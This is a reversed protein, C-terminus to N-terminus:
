RDGLRFDQKSDESEISSKSSDNDDDYNYYLRAMRADLSKRVTPKSTGMMRRPDGAHAESRIGTLVNNASISGNGSPTEKPEEAVKDDDPPSSEHTNATIEKTGETEHVNAQTSREARKMGYNLVKAKDEKPITDWIEQTEKSLSTWTEKNMHAAYDSPNRFKRKAENVDIIALDDSVDDELEHFNVDRPNKSRRTADMKSATAKVATMYEYYTFPTGGLILRDTERETVEQFARIGSLANQMYTRKMSENIHLHVNGQQNNYLDFMQDLTVVFEYASKTWSKFNLRTTIIEQLMERTTIIAPATPHIGKLGQIFAQQANSDTSHAEAHQRPEIPKIAHRLVAYSFAQMGDWEVNEKCSNHDPVYHPDLVIEIGQARMTSMTDKYWTDYGGIEKLKNYSKIDCKMPPKYKPIPILSGYSSGGYGGGGPPMGPPMGGGSGPPFSGGSGPPYGGGGNGPTFWPPIGGGHSNSPPGSGGSTGGNFPPGGQGSPMFSGQARSYVNSQYAGSTRTHSPNGSYGFPTGRMGRSPIANTGNSAPGHNGTSYSTTGMGQNIGGPTHPAQQGSPIGAQHATTAWNQSPTSTGQRSTPNNRRVQYRTSTTTATWPRLTVTRPTWSGSIASWPQSPNGASGVVNNMPTSPTVTHTTHTTGHRQSMDSVATPVTNPTGNYQGDQKPHTPSFSNHNSIGSIDTGGFQDTIIPESFQVALGQKANTATPRDGSNTMTPQDNNPQQPPSEPAVVRRDLEGNENYYFEYTTGRITARKGEWHSRIFQTTELCNEPLEDIDLTHPYSVWTAPKHQGNKRSYRGTFHNQRPNGYPPDRVPQELNPARFGKRPASTVDPDENTPTAVNEDTNDAGSTPLPVGNTETISATAQQSAAKRKAEEIRAEEVRAEKAIREQEAEKRAKDIRAEVEIRLQEEKQIKERDMFWKLLSRVEDSEADYKEYVKLTDSLVSVPDDYKGDRAYQLVHAHICKNEILDKMLCMGAIGFDKHSVIDTARLRKGGETVDLGNVRMELVIERYVQGYIWPTVVTDYYAEQYCVKQTPLLEGERGPEITLPTHRGMIEQIKPTLKLQAFDELSRDTDIFLDAFTKIGLDNAIEEAVKWSDLDGHYEYRRIHKHQRLVDRLHSVLAQFCETNPSPFEEYNWPIMKTDQDGQATATGSTSPNYTSDHDHASSPTPEDLEFWENGKRYQYRQLASGSLEDGLFSVQADSSANGSGDSVAFNRDALYRESSTDSRQANAQGDGHQINTGENNNGQLTTVRANDTSLHPSGGQEATDSQRQTVTAVGGSTTRYNSDPARKRVSPQDSNVSTDKPNPKVELDTVNVGQSLCYEVITRKRLDVDKPLKGGPFMKYYMDQPIEYGPIKVLKSKQHKDKSEKIATAWAVDSESEPPVKYKNPNRSTTKANHSGQPTGDHGSKLQGSVTSTKNGQPSGSPKEANHSVEPKGDHDSKLQGDATSTKTDQHSGPPKKLLTAPPVAQKSLGATAPTGTRKPSGTTDGKDDHRGSAKGSGSQSSTSTVSDSGCSMQSSPSSAKQPSKGKKKAM